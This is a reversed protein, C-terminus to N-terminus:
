QEEDVDRDGEMYRILCYAGVIGSFVMSFATANDSTGMLVCIALMLLLLISRM